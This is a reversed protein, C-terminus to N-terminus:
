PPRRIHRSLNEHTNYREEMKRDRQCKATLILITIAYYRTITMISWKYIRMNYTDVIKNRNEHSEISM